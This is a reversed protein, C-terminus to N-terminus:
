LSCLVLSFLNGTKGSHIYLWHCFIIYCVDWARLWPFINFCYSLHISGIQHHYYCSNYSYGKLWKYTLPGTSCMCVWINYHSCFTISVVQLINSVGGFSVRCVNIHETGAILRSYHHYHFVTFYWFYCAVKLGYHIRSIGYGMFQAIYTSILNGLLGSLWWFICAFGHM